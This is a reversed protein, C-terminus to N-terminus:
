KPIVKHVLKISGQNKSSKCRKLFDPANCLILTNNNKQAKDLCYRCLNSSSGKSHGYILKVSGLNKSSKCFTKLFLDTSCLTLSNKKQQTNMCRWCLQQYSLQYERRTTCPKITSAPTTKDKTSKTM